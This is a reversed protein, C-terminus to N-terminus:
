AETFPTEQVITNKLEGIGEIAVVVTDGVQMPGVGAPTGTSILDGPELTMVNAIYRIVTDISFILDTIPACQRLEGNLFTRVVLKAPDVEDTLVPGVPCSTDFGKGRTWQVDGRQADRASVDNVCTYGLIYDAASRSGIRFCRKAIVVGLEGEFQVNRDWEPYWVPDGAAVLASPPKFFLAPQDPPEHGHERAHDAYNRGLCVIKTPCCPPLLRVADWAHLRGTPNLGRFPDGALERVGDREPVGYSVGPEGDRTTPRAELSASFRCLRM